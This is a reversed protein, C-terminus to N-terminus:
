LIKSLFEEATLVPIESTKYDKINRTIIVNCDNRKATFHQFADELDSFRSDVALEISEIEFPLIKISNILEKVKKKAEIQGIQKTLIYNINAIALSSTCIELNQKESEALM